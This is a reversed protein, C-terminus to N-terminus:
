LHNNFRMKIDSIFNRILWDKSLINFSLYIICGVFIDVLLAVFSSLGFTNIISIVCVMLISGLLYRGFGSFVLSLTFEHKIIILYTLQIICIIVESLVTAIAAGKAGFQPILIHNCLINIIIGGVISFSYVKHRDTAVLYQFGTINSVGMILFLLSLIRIVPITPIYDEGLFWPIFIGSISCLGLIMPLSLFMIFRYTRQMVEKMKNYQKSSYLCSVRPLLVISLSTILTFLIGIIKNAQDYFGSQMMDKSISGLMTTGVVSYIQQALTPIFLIIIEKFGCFPNIKKIKTLFKHLYPWLSINGVLMVSSMIYLYKYFDNSSRIFLFISVVSIVKVIINRFVIIKFNELGQFFWSIDFITAIIYISQILSVEYTTSFNFTYFYYCALALCGTLLRLSFVNVFVQTIASNNEARAIKKIAYSKTGLCVFITFYMVISYSYSYLGISEVKLVRAIYPTTVFPVILGLVDYLLNYIYNKQVSTNEKKM